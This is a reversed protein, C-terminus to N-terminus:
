KMLALKRVVERGDPGVLRALYVGSAAPRGGEDRGDWVREHCGPPLSEAVLIRVLRGQLDHVALRVAGVRDTVFVLITQPNFPNPYNHLAAQPVDPLGDEGGGVDTPEGVIMAAALTHPSAPDNSVLVVDAYYTGVGYGTADFSATFRVSDGVSVTAAVPTIDLWDTEWAVSTVQLPLLGENRVWFSETEGSPLQALAAFLDLRGAGTQNDRGAPGIDVATTELLQGLAAPTLAPNAQLLVAAAGAVVPTAMSTGSYTFYGSPGFSSTIDVGPAALDPKILGPPYPYDVYGSGGAIEWATPGLGSDGWVQDTADAAGVGIVASHGNDGYWPDPCDGPSVIDRPPPYHGGAHDGNGVACFWPIGAALLVAANDRNAERLAEPPDAWGASFSILDAGHDLCFQLGEVLDDYYGPVCRLIMLSAGPAVGSVTGLSGDGVLLGATHTGHWYPADGDYPDDEEDLCDWGHHTFDAGGDWLQGALDPHDYAVGTDLHGIIIDRGDYGAAWAQDAGITTLHWGLADPTAVAQPLAAALPLLETGGVSGHEVRGASFLQSRADALWLRGVQPLAALETVARPTMDAVMSGTMWLSHLANMEGRRALADTLPALADQFRNAQSKLAVVVSARRDAKVFGALARGLAAVDVRLAPEIVVRLTQQGGRQMIEQLRPEIVPLHSRQLLPPAAILGPALAKGAGPAPFQHSIHSVSLRLQPQGSAFFFDGVWMNDDEASEAVDNGTDVVFGILHSGPGAMLPHDEVAVYSGLPLAGSVLWAAVPLGDLTLEVRFDATTADLGTNTFAFSVYVTDDAALLSNERLGPVMNVVLPDGWDPPTFPELNPQTIRESTYVNLGQTTFDRRDIWAAHLKTGAAGAASRFTPEVSYQDSVLEQERWYDPHGDLGSQRAMLQFEDGDVPAELWLCGVRGGETYIAPGVSEATTAVMEYPGYLTQLGDWSFSYVIDGDVQGLGDEFDLQYACYVHPGDATLSPFGCNMDTWATLSIPDAFGGSIADAALLIEVYGTYYDQEGNVMYATAGHLAVDPWLDQYGDPVLYDYTVTDGGNTSYMWILTWEYQLIDWNITLWAAALFVTSFQGAGSVAVAPTACPEGVVLGKVWAWGTPDDPGASRSRVITGDDRIWTVYLYGAADIALDPHYEDEDFAPMEWVQWGAGGDDSRAIHIDRDTGGLDVAAFVAYLDGSLPNIQLSVYEDNMGTADALLHDTNWLSTRQVSPDTWVDPASGPGPRRLELLRGLRERAAAAAALPLARACGGDKATLDCEQFRRRSKAGALSSASARRSGGRPLM